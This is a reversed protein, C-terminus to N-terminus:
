IKQILNYNNLKLKKKITVLPLLTSLLVVFLVARKITRSITPAQYPWGGFTSLLIKLMYWNPNDFFNVESTKEM